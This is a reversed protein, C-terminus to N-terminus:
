VWEGIDNILIDGYQSSVWRNPKDKYKHDENILCYWYEDSVVIDGGCYPCDNKEIYHCEDYDCEGDPYDVRKGATTIKHRDRECDSDDDGIFEGASILRDIEDRYQKGLRYEQM